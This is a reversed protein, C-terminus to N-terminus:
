QKRLWAWAAAGLCAEVVIFVLRAAIAALLAHAPGLSVGLITALVLERVGAGGPILSAFGAVMALSIAATAVAYVSALGPLEGSTPIAYILSTFSAGIFLWALLSYFWGAAFLRSAARPSIPDEVKAVRGAVLRLFPPLTPLCAAVAVLVAMVMLWNPVPLWCIVLGALAAGVAMMLFTEMFVSLTSVVVRVGDKSLAGSRLVIVMAKGPVYKGVHGLLQAAIATRLRPSEGMSRVARHLLFGPPVLSAAYFLAALGIWHWRLNAANPINRQLRLREQQLEDQSIPDTTRSIEESLGAIAAQLKQQEGRWQEVAARVAFFLGVVVLLAICGKAVRMLIQRRNRQSPEHRNPGNAVETVIPGLSKFAICSSYCRYRSPHRIASDAQM